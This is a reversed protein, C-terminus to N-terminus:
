AEKQKYKSFAVSFGAYGRICKNNSAKGALMLVCHVVLLRAVKKKNKNANLYSDFTM